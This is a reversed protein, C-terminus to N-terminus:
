FRGIPRRSLINLERSLEGAEENAESNEGGATGEANTPQDEIGPHIKGGEHKTPLISYSWCLLFLASPILTYIISMMNHFGWPNKYDFSRTVDENMFGCGEEDLKQNPLTMMVYWGLASVQNTFGSMYLLTMLVFFYKILGWWRRRFEFRKLDEITLSIQLLLCTEIIMAGINCYLGTTAAFNFKNILTYGDFNCSGYSGNQTSFRAIIEEYNVYSLNFYIASCVTFNLATLLALNETYYKASDLSPTNKRSFFSYFINSPFIYIFIYM